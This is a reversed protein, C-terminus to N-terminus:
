AAGEQTQQERRRRMLADNLDEGPVDSRWVRVMRGKDAHADIAVQLQAQAQESIDHDAILVVEAVNDPLAVRAMNGLSYAALVRADPQMVRASLATEIGEAIYVRTGPPCDALPAGKGGKPGIGSSLRIACGAEWGYVKKADLFAGPDSPHPVRLKGWRGDPGIQLWTRHVAVTKGMLNTMAAVMAPGEFEIV